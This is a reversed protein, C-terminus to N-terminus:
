PVPLSDLAAIHKRLCTMWELLSSAFAQDLIAQPVWGGLETDCLWRLRTSGPTLGPELVWCSPGQTGRIPKSKPPAAAHTTSVTLLTITNLRKEWHRLTVFDRPAVLGGGGEAMVQYSIDTHEDIVELRQALALQTNWVPSSDLENFLLHLLRQPTTNVQGELRYLRGGSPKRKSEVVDGCQAEKELRWDSSFLTLRAAQLAENAVSKITSCRQRRSARPTMQPQEDDSGAPSDMPSYFNRVSETQDDNQASLRQLYPQLLPSRENPIGTQGRLINQALVEQPIVRFDLFWAEGWAIVFSTIILLVQLVPSNASVWDYLFVKAILFSCTGATSLAIICWHNIYLLAYFLLLIVFRVTAAMVIDFLSTHINYHVVQESMMKFVDENILMICILWMLVTFLLDFTVFLCFFRRVVSMRGSPRVGTVVDGPNVESLITNISTEHSLVPHLSSSSGLFSEAAERIQQEDIRSVNQPLSDYHSHSPM